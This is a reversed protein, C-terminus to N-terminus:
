SQSFIETFKSAMLHIEEICNVVQQRSSITLNNVSLATKTATILQKLKDSLNQCLIQLKKQIEVVSVSKIIADGIFVLKHSSIVLSKVEDVHSTMDCNESFIKCMSRCLNEICVIEARVSEAYHYFINRDHESIRRRCEAVPMQKKNSKNLVLNGEVSSALNECSSWAPQSIPYDYDVGSDVRDSNLKLGKRLMQTQGNITSNLNGVVLKTPILKSNTDKKQLIDFKANGKELVVATRKEGGVSSRSINQRMSATASDIMDDPYMNPRQVTSGSPLDYDLCNDFSQTRKMPFEPFSQDTIKSNRPLDYDLEGLGSKLEHATSRCNIDENYRPFDYDLSKECSMSRTFLSRPESSPKPVDYDMSDQTSVKQKHDTPSNQYKKLLDNPKQRTPPPIVNPRINPNQKSKPSTIEKQKVAAFLVNANEEVISGLETLHNQVDSALSVLTTLYDFDNANGSSGNLLKNLHDLVHELEDSSKKLGEIIITVEKTRERQNKAFIKSVEALYNQLKKWTSVCVIKVISARTDASKCERWKVSFTLIQTVASQVEKELGKFVVLSVNNVIEKSEVAELNMPKNSHSTSTIEENSSKPVDYDALYSDRYEEKTMDRTWNDSDLSNDSASLNSKFLGNKKKSTKLQRPVPVDYDQFTGAM